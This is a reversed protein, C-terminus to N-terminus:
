KLAERCADAAEAINTGLGMARVGFPPQHLQARIYGTSAHVIITSLNDGRERLMRIARGDEMDQALTPDRHLIGRAHEEGSAYTEVRHHPGDAVDQAWASALRAEPTM